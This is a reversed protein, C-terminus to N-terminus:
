RVTVVRGYAIMVSVQFAQSSGYCGAFNIDCMLEYTVAFVVVTLKESHQHLKRPLYGTMIPVSDKDRGM